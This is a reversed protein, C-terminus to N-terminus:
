EEKSLLIIISINALISFLKLTLINNTFLTLIVVLLSCLFAIFKLINM